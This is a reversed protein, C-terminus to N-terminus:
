RRKDLPNHRFPSMKITIINPGEIIPALHKTKIIHLADNKDAWIEYELEGEIEGCLKTCPPIEFYQMMQMITSETERIDDATKETNAKAQQVERNCQIIADLESLKTQGIYPLANALLHAFTTEESELRQTLRYYRSCLNTVEGNM